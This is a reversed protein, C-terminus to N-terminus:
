PAPESATEAESVFDLIKFGLPNWRRVKADAAPAGYSYRLTAIWHSVKDPAGSSARDIKLYRVQATDAVGNSRSLFSLATVQAEVVSGDKHLNLPSLPNSRSWSAYWLQNRQANHFAGCEEYDSEATSLNFRECVSVYHSLFYRTVAEGMTAQGVYTPVVDVVGTSNDVRIVFPEVRKLPMLLALAVCAAIACIVAALATIRAVRAGRQIQAMRDIDWATAEAFYSVLRQDAQVSM